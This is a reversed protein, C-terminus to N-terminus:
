TWGPLKLGTGRAVPQGARTAQAVDTAVAPM